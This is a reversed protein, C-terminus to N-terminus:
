HEQKCNAAHIVIRSLEESSQVICMNVKHRCICKNDDSTYLHQLSTTKSNTKNDKTTKISNSFMQIHMQDIFYVQTSLRQLSKKPISKLRRKRQSLVRTLYTGTTAPHSTSSNPKLVLKLLRTQVDHDTV